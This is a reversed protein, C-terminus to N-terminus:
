VNGPGHITLSRWPHSWPISEVWDVVDAPNAFDFNFRLDHLSSYPRQRRITQRGKAILQQYQWHRLEVPESGDMVCATTHIQNLKPIEVIGERTQNAEPFDAHPEFRFHELGVMSSNATITHANVLHDRWSKIYAEPKTEARGSMRACGGCFGASQECIKQMVQWHAGAALLSWDRARRGTRADCVNNDGGLQAALYIDEYHGSHEKPIRFAALRDIIHTSM